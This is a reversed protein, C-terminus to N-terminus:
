PASRIAALRDSKQASGASSGIWYASVALAINRITAADDTGIAPWGAYNGVITLVWLAVFVVSFAPTAWAMLNHSTALTLMQGRANVMDALRAVLQDTMAQDSVSQMDAQIRLVELRFAETAHPDASLAAVQGPEDAVGTIAQAAAALAPAAAAPILHPVLGSALGILGGIATGVGPVISGTAAGKAAGLLADEGINLWNGGSM